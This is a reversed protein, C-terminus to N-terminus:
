RNIYQTGPKPKFTFDSEPLPKQSTKINSYTCVRTMGQGEDFIQKISVARELDMWITVKPLNKRVTPDKAVLELKETEVGSITEAGLDTIDWKAKLEDGSAGFGLMVYEAFKSAQRFTTVQPIMPEYLQFVGKSFTYIKPAQAGNDTAIHAAMQFNAGAREYYSVGKLVDTDPVPETQNTDFEFDASTSRFNKAAQNLKELTAQLNGAPFAWAPLSVVMVLATFVFKRM